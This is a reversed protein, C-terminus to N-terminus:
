ESLSREESAAPSVEAGGSRHGPLLILAIGGTFLFFGIIGALGLVNAASQDRNSSEPDCAASWTRDDVEQELAAIEEPGPKLLRIDPRPGEAEVVDMYAVSRRSSDDFWAGAARRSYHAALM